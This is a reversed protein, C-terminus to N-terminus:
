CGVGARMWVDGGQPLFRDFLVWRGDPSWIPYDIRVDPDDFAFVREAEGGALPTVWLTKHAVVDMIRGGDPAFSMHFGGKIERVPAPDGGALPIKLAGTSAAPCRFVIGSGDPAIALFHGAVGVDTLACADSGDARMRWVELRGTRDSMFAIHGGDRTFFPNVDISPGDTLRTLAGGGTQLSWIDTTGARSSFFTIRRGDASFRPQFDGGPGDTLRRMDGSVLDTMWLNMDGARDSNFVITRGDPSWAGRSEERPSGVVREPAGTSRGTAPDVPLRWLDANQRLISFLIRKGDPSVAVDIDQGAGSTIQELPGTARGDPTVPVRWVNLGGGRASTMYIHRGTPCWTPAVDQTANHTVWDLAQSALNVVRVGFRTREVNQFVIHTGSPSWRPRLHAVAESSDTTAQRANRGRADAVWLRSPGSWAADFALARGDASPAPNAANEILRREQGSELSVALIDSGEFSGFIDAPELRRGAERARMFLLTRGDAGFAPRIDDHAGRTLERERGSELDLHVIRRLGGSERTFAISRGDPSFVPCEELDDSFTVQRLRRPAGSSVSGAGLNRGARLEAAVDGADWPRGDPERALCRRLLDTVRSATAAPLATLEADRNLIAVFTEAFTPAAFARRGTLMEYLLCGLAWVDTRQDVPASRVQEPSMYAPTGLVVGARTAPGTLTPQSLLDAEAGLSKAIGFDLLKVAGSRTLMVNAPKLDRHVIGRQHAVNLADAVQLAIAIAEEEGVPGRGIRADLGEGEVLEMTIVHRGELDELGHIVAINPHNLSALLRAEREFRAQRDPDSALEAPLLKLAVERGLRTDLARYVEGMGGAGIPAVIEYPGLRDGAALTV